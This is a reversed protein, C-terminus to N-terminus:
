GRRGTAILHVMFGDHCTEVRDFAPIVIRLFDELPPSTMSHRGGSDQYEWEGYDESRPSVTFGTRGSFPSRNFSELDEGLLVEVYLAGGPTIWDVASSWLRAIADRSDLYCYGAWFNTVLDFSAKPFSTQTLDGRVFQATPVRAHARALQAPSIDLGVMWAREPFLSFHWAQGCALDLWRPLPKEFASLITSLNEANLKHKRTWPDLYLVAYDRAAAKEAIPSIPQAM